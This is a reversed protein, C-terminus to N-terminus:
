EVVINTIQLYTYIQKYFNLPAQCWNTCERDDYAEGFAAVIQNILEQTIKQKNYEPKKLPRAM